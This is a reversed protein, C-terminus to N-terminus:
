DSLNNLHIKIQHENLMLLLILYENKRLFEIVIKMLNPIYSCTALSHSCLNYMYSSYSSVNPVSNPILNISKYTQIHLKYQIMKKGTRQSVWTVMLNNLMIHKYLEKNNINFIYIVSIRQHCLEIELSHCANCDKFYNNSFM